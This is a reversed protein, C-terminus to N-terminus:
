ILCLKLYILYLYKIFYFNSSVNKKKETITNM